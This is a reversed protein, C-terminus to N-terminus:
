PALYISGRKRVASRWTHITNPSIEHRRAVLAVNGTEQCEKLIQEKFEDTYQKKNQM